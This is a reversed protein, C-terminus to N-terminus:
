ASIVVKCIRYQRFRMKVSNKVSKTLKLDATSHFNSFDSFNFKLIGVLHLNNESLNGYTIGQLVEEQELRTRLFIFMM